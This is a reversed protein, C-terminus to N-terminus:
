MNRVAYIAGSAMMQQVYQASYLVPAAHMQGAPQQPARSAAYMAALQRERILVAAERSALVADRQMFSQEMRHEKATVNSFIDRVQRERRALARERASLAAADAIVQQEKAAVADQCTRVHQQAASVEASQRSVLRQMDEVRDAQQSLKLEAASLGAQRSAVLKSAAAAAHEKAAV